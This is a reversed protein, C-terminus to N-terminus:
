GLGTVWSVKAWDNGKLRVKRLHFVFLITSRVWHQSNPFSGNQYLVQPVKDIM